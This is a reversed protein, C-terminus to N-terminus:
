LANRPCLIIRTIPSASCLPLFLALSNVCKGKDHRAEKAQGM